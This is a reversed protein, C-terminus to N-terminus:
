TRKYLEEADAILIEQQRGEYDGVDTALERAEQLSELQQLIETLMDIDEVTYQTAYRGTEVSALM